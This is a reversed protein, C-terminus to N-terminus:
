KAKHLEIIELVLDKLTLANMLHDQAHIMLLTLDIPLSRAEQQLLDFQIRHAEHLNEEAAKFLKEAATFNKERANKLAILLDSRADGAYAIISIAIQNTNQSMFLYFFMLNHLFSIKM